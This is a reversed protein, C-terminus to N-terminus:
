LYNHINLWFCIAVHGKKGIKAAWFLCVKILQLLTEFANKM